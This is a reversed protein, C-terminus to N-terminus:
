LSADIAQLHGKEAYALIARDVTLLPAEHHRATAVIIRDAPDNHFDGPLM